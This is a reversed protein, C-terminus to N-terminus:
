LMTQTRCMGCSMPCNELMWQANKGVCEGDNAWGDCRGDAQECAIPGAGAAGWFNSVAGLPHPLMPGVASRNQM